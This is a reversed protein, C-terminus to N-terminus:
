ETNEKEAAETTQYKEDEDRPPKAVVLPILMLTLLALITGLLATVIRGLGAAIGVAATFWIGAATTLGYIQGRRTGKLITGAGLFGIGSIVGQLVRSLSEPDVGAQLPVVVFFASGLAVLMHTRVGAAKGAHEREFGLIGGFVAALGLRVILQTVEGVTPLDSFDARISSLVENWVEAM